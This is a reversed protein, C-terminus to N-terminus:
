DHGLCGESSAKSGEFIRHVHSQAVQVPERPLLTAYDFHDEENRDQAQSPGLLPLNSSSMRAAVAVYAGRRHEPGFGPAERAQPPPAEGRELQVSSRTICRSSPTIWDM